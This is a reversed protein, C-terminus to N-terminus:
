ASLAALAGRLNARARADLRAHFHDSLFIRERALLTGLFHRRGARYLEPPLMAYEAAIAAEYEAYRGPAAGLIAMDCDLFAAADADLETRDLAGHRATLLILQEVRDLDLVSAGLHRRAADRALAASRAENDRAGPVYIADHFLVALFVEGPQRWGSTRAVEDFHAAVEEVHSFSHYARPPAAYAARLEALLADSLPLPSQAVLNM